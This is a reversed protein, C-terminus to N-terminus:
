FDTAASGWALRSHEALPLDGGLKWRVPQGRIQRSRCGRNCRRFAEIWKLSRIGIKGLVSERWRPHDSLTPAACHRASMLAQVREMVASIM